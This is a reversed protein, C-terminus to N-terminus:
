FMHTHLTLGLTERISHLVIEIRLEAMYHKM